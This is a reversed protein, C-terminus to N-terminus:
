TGFERIERDGDVLIDSLLKSRSFMKRELHDSCRSSHKEGFDICFIPHPPSGNQKVKKDLPFTPFSLGFDVSCVLCLPVPFHLEKM